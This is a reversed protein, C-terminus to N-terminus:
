IRLIETNSFAPNIIRSETSGGKNRPHILKSLGTRMMKKLGM